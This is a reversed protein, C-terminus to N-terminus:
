EETFNSHLHLVNLEEMLNNQDMKQRKSQDKIKYDEFANQIEEIKKDKEAMKKDKEAMKKQMEAMQKKLLEIDNMESMGFSKMDPDDDPGFSSLL